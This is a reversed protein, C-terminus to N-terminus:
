GEDGERPCGEVVARVQKGKWRGRDVDRGEEGILTGGREVIRGERGGDRGRGRRVDRERRAAAI